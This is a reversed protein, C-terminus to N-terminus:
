TYNKYPRCEFYRFSCNLGRMLDFYNRADQEGRKILNDSTLLLLIYV